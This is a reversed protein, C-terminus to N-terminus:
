FGNGVAHDRQVAAGHSIVLFDSDADGSLENWGFIFLALKMDKKYFRQGLASELDLDGRIPELSRLSISIKRRRRQSM